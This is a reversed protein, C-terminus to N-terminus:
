FNDHYVSKLWKYVRCVTLYLTNSLIIIAVLFLGAAWYARGAERVIRFCDLDRWWAM